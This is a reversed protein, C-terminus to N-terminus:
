GFPSFAITYGVDWYPSQAGANEPATHQPPDTMTAMLRYGAGDYQSLLRAIQGHWNNFRREELETDAEIQPCLLHLFVEGRPMVTGDGRREWSFGPLEFIIAWPHTVQGEPPQFYSKIVFERAEDPDYKAISEQWAASESVLRAVQEIAITVPELAAETTTTM